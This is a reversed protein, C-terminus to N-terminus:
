LERNVGVRMTRQTSIQAARACVVGVCLSWCRVKAIELKLGEIKEKLDKAM